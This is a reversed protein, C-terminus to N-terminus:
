KSGGLPRREFADIFSGKTCNFIQTGKSKAYDDIVHYAQFAFLFKQLIEHLKRPRHKAKNMPKSHSTNTDYFHKQHVLAVNDETVSIESLWSHEVGILDITKYGMNITNLLSPIIVNHPRPMGWNMKFCFHDVVRFGQVPTTNYSRVQINDPLAKIFPKLIKSHVGETPIFLQMEWSTKEKLNAFLLERRKITTENTSFLWFEPASILYLNPQIIKYQPTNVFYNVALTNEKKIHAQHKELEANLSPGNGMIILYDNKPVPLHISFKSRILIKLLSGISQQLLFLSDQTKELISM